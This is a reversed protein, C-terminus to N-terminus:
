YHIQQWFHQNSPLMSACKRLHFLYNQDKTKICLVKFFSNLALNLKIMYFLFTMNLTMVGMSASNLWFFSQECFCNWFIAFTWHLVLFSIGAWYFTVDRDRVRTNTIIFWGISWLYMHITLLIFNLFFM